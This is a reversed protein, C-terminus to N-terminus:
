TNAIGNKPVTKPAAITNKIFFLIFIRRSFTRKPNADPTMIAADTQDRKIGDRSMAVSCFTTAHIGAATPKRNPIANKSINSLIIGCKCALLSLGSPKLAWNCLVM